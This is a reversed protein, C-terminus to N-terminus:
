VEKVSFSFCYINTTIIRQDYGLCNVHIAEHVYECFIKNITVTSIFTDTCEKRVQFRLLYNSIDLKICM